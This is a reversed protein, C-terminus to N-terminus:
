ICKLTKHKSGGGVTNPNETLVTTSRCNNLALARERGFLAKINIHPHCGRHRDGFPQLCLNTNGTIKAAWVYIVFHIKFFLNLNYYSIHTHMYTYM